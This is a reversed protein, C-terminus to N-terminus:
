AGGGAAAPEAEPDLVRATMWTLYMEEPITVGLRNSHMHVYSPVISRVALAADLRHGRMELAGGEAAALLRARAEAVDDRWADLAETLPEGRDLRGWTEELYLGLTGAQGEYGDRWARELSARGEEDEVLTRLYGTAYARAFAAAAARDPVFAHLLTATALLARGLRAPRKGETGELLRLAAESSRHFLAEAVPLGARGGYRDWEPEYAVPVVAVVDPPPDDEDSPPRTTTPPEPLESSVGPFREEAWARLAPAVEGGIREAEGHVRLRLHPGREGYRIFFWRDIWGRRELERVWPVAVGALVRDFPAGYLAGGLFLHVSHWAGREADAM